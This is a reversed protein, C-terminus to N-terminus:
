FSACVPSFVRGVSSQRFRAVYAAILADVRAYVDPADHVVIVVVKTRERLSRSAARPRWRGEGDLVTLGDPFRPVIERNLFDVWQRETVIAHSGVRRGFYLEARLM